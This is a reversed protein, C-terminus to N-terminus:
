LQFRKVTINGFVEMLHELYRYNACRTCLREVHLHNDIHYSVEKGNNETLEKDCVYCSNFSEGYHYRTPLQNTVDKILDDVLKKTSPRNIMNILRKQVDAINKSESYPNM